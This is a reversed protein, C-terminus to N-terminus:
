FTIEDIVDITIYPYEVHQHVLAQGRHAVGVGLVVRVVVVLLDDVKEEEQRREEGLRRHHAHQDRDHAVHVAMHNLVFFDVLCLVLEVDQGLLRAHHRRLTLVFFLGDEHEYDLGVVVEAIVLTGPIPVDILDGSQCFAMGLCELLLYSLTSVLQLLRQVIKSAAVVDTIAEQLAQDLLLHFIRLCVWALM